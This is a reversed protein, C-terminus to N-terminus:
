TLCTISHEKIHLRRMFFFFEAWRWWQTDFVVISGSVICNISKTTGKTYVCSASVALFVFRQVFLTLCPQSITFRNKNSNPTPTVSIRFFHPRTQTHTHMTISFFLMTVTAHVEEGELEGKSSKKSEASQCATEHEMRGCALLHMTDGQSIKLNLSKSLKGTSILLLLAVNPKGWSNYHTLLTSFSLPVCYHLNVKNQHLGDKVNFGNFPRINISTFVFKIDM